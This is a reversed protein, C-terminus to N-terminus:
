EKPRYVGTRPDKELTVPREDSNPRASDSRNLPDPRRRLLDAIRTGEKRVFKWAFWGLIALLVITVLQGM